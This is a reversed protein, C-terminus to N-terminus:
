DAKANAQDVQKKPKKVHKIVYRKCSLPLM